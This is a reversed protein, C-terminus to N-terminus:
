VEKENNDWMLLTSLKVRAEYLMDSELRSGTEDEVTVSVGDPGKVTVRKFYNVKCFKLPVVFAPEGKKNLIKDGKHKIVKHGNPIEVPNWALKAAKAVDYLVRKFDKDEPGISIIAQVVAGGKITVLDPLAPDFIVNCEVGKWGLLKAGVDRVHQTAASSVADNYFKMVRKLEEERNLEESM